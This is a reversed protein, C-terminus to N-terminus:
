ANERSPHPLPRYQRPKGRTSILVAILYARRRASSCFIVPWPRALALNAALHRRAFRSWRSSHRWGPRRCGGATQARAVLRAFVLLVGVVQVTVAVAIALLLLFGISLARVPVGRAAAVAPDVSAFLLPRFGVALAALAGLACVLTIM